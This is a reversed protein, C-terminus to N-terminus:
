SIKSLATIWEDAPYGLPGDPLFRIWARLGKLRNKYAPKATQLIAARLEAPSSIVPLDPDTLFTKVATYNNYQHSRTDPGGTDTRPITDQWKDATQEWIGALGSVKKTVPAKTPIKVRAPPTPTAPGNLDPFTAPANLVKEVYQHAAAEDPSAYNQILVASERPKRGQLYDIILNDVKNNLLMQAHYKRLSKVTFPKSEPFLPNIQNGADRIKSNVTEKVYGPFEYNILEEVFSAPFLAIETKKGRNAAAPTSDIAVAPIGSFTIIDGRTFKLPKGAKEKQQYLRLAHESRLGTYMLLKFFPKLDDPTAMYAATVQETPVPLVKGPTERKPQVLFARWEDFSYGAISRIKTYIGLYDLMARLALVPYEPLNLAILSQPDPIDPLKLLSNYYATARTKVIGREFRGEGTLYQLFAEKQPKIHTEIVEALNLFNDGIREGIEIEGEELPGKSRECRLPRPNLDRRTWEEENKESILVLNHPTVKRLESIAKDLLRSANVGINKLYEHNEPDISLNLRPRVRRLKSTKKKEKNEM